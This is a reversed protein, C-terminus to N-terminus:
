ESSRYREGGDDEGAWRIYGLKPRPVSALHQFVPKAPALPACPAPVTRLPRGTDRDARPGSIHPSITRPLVQVDFVEEVGTVPSALNRKLLASRDSSM